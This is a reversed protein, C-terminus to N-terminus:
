SISYTAACAVAAGSAHWLGHALQWDEPRDLDKMRQAYVFLAAPVLGLAFLEPAEQSLLFALRLFNFSALVRDVGHAPSPGGIYVYDALVSVLAQFVWLAQEAPDPTCAAPLAFLAGSLGSVPARVEDLTWTPPMNSATLDTTRVRIQERLSTAVTDLQPAKLAAVTHLRCHLLLTAAGLAALM